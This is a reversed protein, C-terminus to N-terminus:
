LNFIHGLVNGNASRSLDTYLGGWRSNDDKLVPLDGSLM